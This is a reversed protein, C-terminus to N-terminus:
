QAYFSKSNERIKDALAIKQRRKIRRIERKLISKLGRFAVLCFSSRMQRYRASVEKIRRM